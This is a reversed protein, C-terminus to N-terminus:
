SMVTVAYSAAGLLAAKDNLVVKVPISSLLVKMPGTTRFADMFVGDQMKPLIKPAIGGGIFMGGTSMTKLALNATETGYISVFMRLAEVAMPCTGALAAKSISASPDGARMADALFKQETAYGKQKLFLYINHLGPGSLVNEVDPYPFRTLLYRLLEMETEDRPTFGSHGGECAFPALKTDQRYLGAEGLGTGAAIVAGNGQPDETGSNLVVFDEPKSALIGYATAELDNILGVRPLSLQRAIAKSDVIWPLNTTKSVGGRVPGAVGFAAHEPQLANEDLFRTLIVGLGAHGISPYTQEAVVQLRDNFFAVNTKTGGVDGALIM